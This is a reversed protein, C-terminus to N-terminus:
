NAQIVGGREISSIFSTSIKEKKLELKKCFIDMM